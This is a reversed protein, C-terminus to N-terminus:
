RQCEQNKKKKANWFVTNKIVYLHFFKCWSTTLQINKICSNNQCRLHSTLLSLPCIEQRDTIHDKTTKHNQLLSRLIDSRCVCFCWIQPMKKKRRGGSAEVHGCISTAETFGKQCSDLRGGVVGGERWRGVEDGTKRAPHVHCSMAAM